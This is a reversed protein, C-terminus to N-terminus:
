PTGRMTTWLNWGRGTPVVPLGFRVMSFRELGPAITSTVSIHSQPPTLECTYWCIAHKRLLGTVSDLSSQVTDVAGVTGRLPVHAVTRHTLSGLPTTLCKQLAPWAKLRASAERPVIGDVAVAVQVLENLARVVAHEGVLSAGLGLPEAEAGGGGRVAVYAPIGLDTTVDLLVVEGGVAASAIRYLLQADDPLSAIDLVSVQPDHAIIWRLLAHSLADHEILECLGHLCSEQSNVGAATGISSAYRLMSRYPDASDGSLPERHYNPDTLFIPYWVSSNENSYVACAATGDPFDKAWRQIVLDGALGPDRALDTASKPNAVGSALRRNIRASMYYRELAEFCAGAVAELERGTGAGGAVVQNDGHILHSIVVAYQSVRVLQKEFRMGLREAERQALSVAADASLSRLFPSAVQVYNEPLM